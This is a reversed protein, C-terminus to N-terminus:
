ATGGTGDGYISGGSAANYINYLMHSAGSMMYRSSFSGSSGQSFAVTYSVTAIVLASCTVQVDGNATNASASFANYASFAAGSVSLSCTCGLGVCSAFSYKAMAFFFILCILVVLKQM